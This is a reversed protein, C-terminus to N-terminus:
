NTIIDYVNIVDEFNEIEIRYVGTVDPIWQVLCADGRATDRAILRGSEDYIYLDLDSAGSGLVVVEALEGGRFEAYYVDVSEGQITENRNRRPGEAVGAELAASIGLWLAGAVVTTTLMQMRTM